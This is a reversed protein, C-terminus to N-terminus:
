KIYRGVTVFERLQYETADKLGQLSYREMFAVLIDGYRDGAKSLVEILASKADRTGAIGGNLM